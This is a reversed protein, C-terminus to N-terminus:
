LVDQTNFYTIEFTQLELPALRVNITQVNAQVFLGTTSVKTDEYDLGTNLLALLASKTKDDYYFFPTINVGGETVIPPNDRYLWTIIKKLLFSRSRYAFTWTSIHIPMSCIRGGLKNEFLVIGDSIKKCNIDEIISLVISEKSANLKPIEKNKLGLRLWNTPLLNDAFEGAFPTILLREASVEQLLTEYDCGIYEGFGREILGIIAESDLLVSKKLLDLVAGDDLCDLHQGSIFNVEGEEFSTCVGLQAFLSDCQRSPVIGQGMNKTADIYSSTEKNWLLGIGKQKKGKRMKQLADLEKKTTKLMEIFGQEQYFPTGLFDFINLSINHAGALIHLKMQLVTQSISKTYRTHPWNEVESIIQVTDDLHAISLAMGQHVEILTTHLCDEYSGGLPRSVGQNKGAFTEILLKMDRGQVSHNPEGSNMLGVKINDDIAHVAEQIKRAAILQNEFNIEQWIKRVHKSKKDNGLVYNRLQESGIAEGIRESVKQAHLSCFCGLYNGHNVSRFDDDIMLISPHTQAYMSVVDQAYNQWNTDLICYTTNNPILNEGVFNEFPLKEEKPLLADCHGVITALNISFTIGEKKLTDAFVAYISSMEKHKELTFPSMLIQHCQEKLFVESIHSYKCVEIIEKLQREWINPHVVVRLIYEM